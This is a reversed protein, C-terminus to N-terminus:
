SKPLARWDRRTIKRSYSIKSMQRRSCTHIGCADHYIKKAFHQAQIGFLKIHLSEQERIPQIGPCLIFLCVQILQIMRGWALM